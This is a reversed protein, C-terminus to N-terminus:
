WEAERYDFAAGGSSRKWEGHMKQAGQVDGLKLLSEIVSLYEENGMEGIKNMLRYVEEKSATIEIAKLISGARGYALAMAEMSKAELKLKDVWEKKHMDMVVVDSAYANVRLVNNMSASDLEINNEKMTRLLNEIKVRKGLVSYIYIMSKFPSLKNLFGLDGMKEFIAEAKDVNQYSITYMNLLTAYVSYGKMKEPISTDFFKDAEELGLVKETLDLRDAYDEPFLNIVEQNCFWSSAELAKSFQNSDRLNKILDRLESPKVQTGMKGWEELFPTILKNCSRINKIVFGHLHRLHKLSCSSAELAKSFQNSDRLNKILDRLESPKVQTGM